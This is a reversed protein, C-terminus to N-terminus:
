ALRERFKIGAIAIVLALGLAAAIVRSIESLSWLRAFVFLMVFGGGIVSSYEVVANKKIWIGAVVAAFGILLAIIFGPLETAGFSEIVYKAFVPLLLTLSVGVFFRRAGEFHEVITKPKEEVAHGRLLFVFAIPVFWLFFTWLGGGILFFSTADTLAILTLGVAFIVLPWLLIFVLLDM